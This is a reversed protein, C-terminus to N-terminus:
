HQGSQPGAVAEVTMEDVVRARLVKQSGTNEVRIVSGLKGDELAKVM